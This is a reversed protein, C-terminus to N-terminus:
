LKGVFRPYPSMMAPRWIRHGRNPLNDQWEGWKLWRCLHVTPLVAAMQLMTRIRSSIKNATAGAFTEACDGGQLVFAKGSAAQALRERLVDVEGAFVLPP